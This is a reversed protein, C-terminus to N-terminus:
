KKRHTNSLSIPLYLCGIVPTSVCALLCNSPFTLWWDTINMAALLFLCFIIYFHLHALRLWRAPTVKRAASYHQTKLEPALRRDMMGGARCLSSSCGSTHLSVSSVVEFLVTFLKSFKLPCQLTEHNPFRDVFVFTRYIKRYNILIFCVIM